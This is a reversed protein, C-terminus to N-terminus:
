RYGRYAGTPPSPAFDPLEGRAAQELWIPKRRRIEAYLVDFRRSAHFLMIREGTTLSGVTLKNSELDRLLQAAMLM